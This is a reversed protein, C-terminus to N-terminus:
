RVVVLKRTEDIGAAELRYFYIGSPVPEGAADRGDWTVTHEGPEPTGEVLTKVRHGAIDFVTLVTPIREPVSFRIETHAVVPNPDNQALCREPLPAVAPEAVAPGVAGAGAATDAVSAAVPSSLAPRAGMAEAPPAAALWFSATLQTLVVAQLLGRTRQPLSPLPWQLLPAGWGRRGGPGPLSERFQATYQIFCAM